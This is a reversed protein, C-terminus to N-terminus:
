QEAGTVDPECGRLRVIELDPKGALLRVALDGRAAIRLRKLCTAGVDLEPRYTTSARFEDMREVSGTQSHATGQNRDELIVLMFVSRHGDRARQPRVHVTALLDSAALTM